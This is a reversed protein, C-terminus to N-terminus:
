RLARLNLVCKSSRDKLCIGYMIRGYIFSANLQKFNMQIIVSTYNSNGSVVLIKESIIVEVSGLVVVAQAGQSKGM